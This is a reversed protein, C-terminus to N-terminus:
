VLGVRKMINVKTCVLARALCLSLAGASEHLSCHMHVTHVHLLLYIYQGIYFNCPFAM